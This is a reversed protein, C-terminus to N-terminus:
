LRVAFEREKSMYFWAGFILTLLAWMTAQIWTSLPPNVGLILTESWTGLLSYLPNIHALAQFVGQAQDPYYLVPSIYLLIRIAYPLITATDRFYVQAAAFIMATGSAFALIIIFSPIALLQVFSFPAGSFVYAVIFIPLTPLFRYFATRVAAVPLLLRPFSANMILKGAGVVSGAGGTMCNSIFYFLFLSGLLHAFYDPGKNAGGSLIVVLFYYVGALLLPNLVLWFRGIVTNAQQARLSSKSLELAFERRRWFERFYGKLNPLGTIKSEFVQLIDNRSVDKGSQMGKNYRPIRM